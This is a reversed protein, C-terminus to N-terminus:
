LKEFIKAGKTKTWAFLVATAVAILVTCLGLYLAPKLYDNFIYYYLVGFVLAIVWSGFVSLTVSMSQKIPVVENTWKLNPFKLNAWLGFFASFVSYVVTAIIMLVTFLVNMETVYAAVVAFAVSPAVSLILHVKIKAILVDFASLPLTKVIWIHKGELSVSPATYDCMSGFIIVAAAVLLWVIEKTQMGFMSIIENIMDKKFAIFVAIVPMMITGLGCNLMYTPSSLFRRFEKKILATKINGSKASNGKYRPKRDGKETTAIKIYRRSLVAYVVVFLAVIIAAFIAMPLVKGEAALGMQYFPYIANKVGDNIIEPNTILEQLMEYAKSYVYYYAAAFGLSLAMTVINKHRLKSSILAVVWGLVCALTLIFLSLVLTIVTSFLYGLTNLEANIFWVALTPVMVVLEYLLGITYVGILRSFLIKGEPIPLSFLLDNDKAKYLSAYTTFASGITGAIIGMFSMLTFYFWGLNATILPKCLFDAMFYIAVGLYGLLLLSLASSIVIGKLDRSKGTKRNIFVFSFVEALQKKILPKIM